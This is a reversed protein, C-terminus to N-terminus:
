HRWAIGFNFMGVILSLARVGPSLDIICLSVLHTYTFAREEGNDTVTWLWGDDGNAVRFIAKIKKSLDISFILYSTEDITNQTM